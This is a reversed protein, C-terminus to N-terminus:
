LVCREIASRQRCRLDARSYSSRRGDAPRAPHKKFRIAITSTQFSSASPSGGDLMGESRHLVTDESMRTQQHAPQGTCLDFDVERRHCIVQFADGEILAFMFPILGLKAATEYRAILSDDTTAAPFSNVQAFVMGAVVLLLGAIAVASGLLAIAVDKGYDPVFFIMLIKIISSGSRM